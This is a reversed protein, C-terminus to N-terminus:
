RANLNAEGVSGAGRIENEMVVRDGPLSVSGAVGLVKFLLFDVSRSGGSAQSQVVCRM